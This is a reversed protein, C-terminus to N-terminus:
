ASAKRVGDGAVTKESVLQTKVMNGAVMEFDLDFYFNSRASKHVLM